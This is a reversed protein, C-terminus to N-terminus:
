TVTHSQGNGGDWAVESTDVVFRPPYDDTNRGLQGHIMPELSEREREPNLKSSYSM